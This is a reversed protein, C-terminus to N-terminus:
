IIELYGRPHTHQRWTGTTSLGRGLALNAIGKRKDNTGNQLSHGVRAPYLYSEKGAKANFDGQIHIFTSWSSSVQKM